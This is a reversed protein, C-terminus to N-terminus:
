NRAKLILGNGWVEHREGHVAVLHEEKQFGDEINQVYISSSRKQVM